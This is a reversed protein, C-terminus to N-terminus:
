LAPLLLAPEAKVKEYIRLMVWCALFLYLVEVLLYLSFSPFFDVSALYRIAFYHLYLFMLANRGPLALLEAPVRLAKRAAIGRALAFALVIVLLALFVYAPSLSFKRPAFDERVLGLAAAAALAAGLLFRQSQKLNLVLVGFLFFGLWPFLSFGGGFLFILPTGRIWSLISPPLLMPVFFPIPFLAGLRLPDRVIKGLLFLAIVALAICQLFEPFIRLSGGHAVVIHTSGGFFLIWPVLWHFLDYRRNGRTREILLSTNMGSCAFFLPAAFTGFALLRGSIFHAAIMLLCALGKAIDVEVIRGPVSIEDM